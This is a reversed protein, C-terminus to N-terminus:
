LNSIGALPNYVFINICDDDVSETIWRSREGLRQQVRSLIIQLFIEFSDDIDANDTVKQTHFSFYIPPPYKKEDKEVVNRFTLQLTIQPKFGKM